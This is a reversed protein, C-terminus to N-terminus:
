APRAPAGAWPDVPVPAAWFSTRLRAGARSLGLHVHDRHATTPDIPRPRGQADFCPRYPVLGERGAYWAHCDWIVEQVGMRRALARPTGRRDKALLLRILRAAARREAPVRVDLRWDLARGEAHLSFSTPSLRECRVIGWSDGRLNAELWVALALAGPQPFRRCAKALDYVEPDATRDALPDAPNAGRAGA